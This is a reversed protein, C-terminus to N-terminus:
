RIEHAYYFYGNRYAALDRVNGNASIRYYSAERPLDIDWWEIDCNASYSDYEPYTDMTSLKREEVTSAFETKTMEVKMCNLADLGSTDRHTQIQYWKNFLFDYLAGAGILVTLLIIAVKLKKM